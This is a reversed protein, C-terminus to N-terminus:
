GRGCLRVLLSELWVEEEGSRLSTTKSEYDAQALIELRRAFWDDSLGAVARSARRVAFLPMGVRRSIDRESTKRRLLRAVQWYQRVQHALIAIIGEKAEGRLLLQDTLRLAEAADRGAVAAGLDFASRQRGRTVMEAVDDEAIAGREGVYLALKQFESELALLNPGIAEVMASAAASSMKKGARRALDAVFARADSWSPPGCDVVTGASRIAKAAATRMDLRDLCLILTGTRSPREMYEAAPAGHAKLFADGQEVVAVRRGAMGLFPVTRLEGFVDRAEPVGEFRRVSSGPQEPPAAFAELLRLSRSRLADDQGVLAYVPAPEAKRLHDELKLAKVVPM